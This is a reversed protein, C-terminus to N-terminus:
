IQTLKFEIVTLSEIRSCVLFMATHEIARLSRNFSTWTNILWDYISDTIQFGSIASQGNHSAASLDSQHAGEDAFQRLKDDIRRIIRDFLEEIQKKLTIRYLFRYNEEFNVHDVKWDMFADILNDVKEWDDNSVADNSLASPRRPARGLPLRRPPMPDLPDLGPRTPVITDPRPIWADENDPISNLWELHNVEPSDSFIKQLEAINCPTVLAVMSNSGPQEGTDAFEFPGSDKFERLTSRTEPQSTGLTSSETTEESWPLSRLAAFVLHDAVHLELSEPTSPKREDFDPCFPCRSFTRGIPRASAESMSALQAEAFKGAHEKRMHDEFRSRSTFSLPGHVRAACRWEYKHETRM